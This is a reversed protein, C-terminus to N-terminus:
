TDERLVAFVPTIFRQLPQVEMEGVEHLVERLSPMFTDGMDSVADEITGPDRQVLARVFIPYQAPLCQLPDNRCRPYLQLSHLSM